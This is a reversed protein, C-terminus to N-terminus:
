LAHKKNGTVFHKGKYYVWKTGHATKVAVWKAGHWSKSAVWKTGTWTKNGVTTGIRRGKHYVKKTTKEVKDGIKGTMTEQGNVSLSGNSGLASGVFTITLVFALAM